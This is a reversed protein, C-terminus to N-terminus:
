SNFMRLFLTSTLTFTSQLSSVKILLKVNSHAILIGVDEM